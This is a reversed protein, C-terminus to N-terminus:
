CRVKYFAAHCVFSCQGLTVQIHALSQLEAERRRFERENSKSGSMRRRMLALKQEPTLCQTGPHWSENCLACFAFFCKSCQAMNDEDELCITSCRPCYVADMMHNLTRELEVNELRLNQEDSLLGKIM